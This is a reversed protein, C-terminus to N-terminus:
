RYNRYFFGMDIIKIQGHEDIGMNEYHMDKTGYMRGDWTLDVIDGVMAAIQRAYSKMRSHNLPTCYQSILVGTTDDIFYMKPLYPILKKYKRQGRIIRGWAKYELVSHKKDCELETLPFKVVLPIGCLKYVRRYAGSGLSYSKFGGVTQIDKPRIIDREMFTHVVEDILQDTSKSM